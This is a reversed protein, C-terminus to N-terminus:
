RYADRGPWRMMVVRKLLMDIYNVPITQIVVYASNDLTVVVGADDLLKVGPNFRWSDTRKFDPDALVEDTFQFADNLSRVSITGFRAVENTVLRILDRLERFFQLTDNIVVFEVNRRALIRSVEKEDQASM